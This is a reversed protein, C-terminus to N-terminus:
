TQPQGHGCAFFASDRIFWLSYLRSDRWTATILHGNYVMIRTGGAEVAADGAAGVPALEDTRVGPADLEAPALGEGVDGRPLRHVVRIVAGANSGILILLLIM